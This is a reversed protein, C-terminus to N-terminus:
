FVEVTKLKYIVEEIDEKLHEIEDTKLAEDLIKDSVNLLQKEFLTVAERNVRKLLSIQININQINSILNAILYEDEPYFFYSDFTIAIATDITSNQGISQFFSRHYYAILEFYKWKKM